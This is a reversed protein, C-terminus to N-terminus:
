NKGFIFYFSHLSNVWNRFVSNLFNLCFFPKKKWVMQKLFSCFQSLGQSCKLKDNHGQQNFVINAQHSRKMCSPLQNSVKIKRKWFKYKFELIFDWLIEFVKFKLLLYIIVQKLIRVFDYDKSFYNLNKMKSHL